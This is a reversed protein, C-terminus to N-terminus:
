PVLEGDMSYTLIGRRFDGDVCGDEGCVV